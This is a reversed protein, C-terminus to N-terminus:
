AEEPSPAPKSWPLGSAVKPAAQEAIQRDLDAELSVLDLKEALWGKVIDETLTAFPIVTDGVEVAVSGYASGVFEGDAKTVTWHVVTVIDGETNRELNVIEFQM